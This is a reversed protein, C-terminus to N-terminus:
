PQVLHGRSLVLVESGWSMSADVQQGNDDRRVIWATLTLERDRPVLARM